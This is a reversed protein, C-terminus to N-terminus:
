RQPMQGYGGPQGGRQKMQQQMQQMRQQMEQHFAEAEEESIYGDGNKDMHRFQMESPKLFEQLSVKGDGDTDMQQIFMQSPPPMDKPQAALPAALVLLVLPTYRKM